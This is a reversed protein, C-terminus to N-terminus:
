TPRSEHDFGAASRSAESLDELEISAVIKEADPDWFEPLRNDFFALNLVSYFEFLAALAVPAIAVARWVNWEEPVLLLVIGMLFAVLGLNFAWSLRTLYAAAIRLDAAHKKREEMFVAEDVTAERRWDLRVSPPALYQHMWASFQLAYLFAITALVFTLIAGDNLPPPNDLSVLIPIATFAFGALFPAAVNGYSSPGAFLNPHRPSQWADEASDPLGIVREALSWRGPERFRAM